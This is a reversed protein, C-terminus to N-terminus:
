KVENKIQGNFFANLNDFVIETRKQMSEASAFAIHPTLLTNKAGLLPYDAPLPPEMDFVDIGAGALQNQNLADALAVNDVVGGRALNLLIASSKMSSLQEKGILHKTAQNLPCHLSVIDSRQLLEQLSVFEVFDDRQANSHPTYALVKCGFAAFLRATARGIAGMGVIGVCKSGLESGVLGDKTQGSRCRQQTAFVNRLLDIAMCVALEAVANTSYGAANSIKAGAAKVAAIDVHDVGTFAIDVYKLHQCASIVEGPLPMNALILVDADACEEKLTQSDTTKQYCEFQHGAALLPQTFSQLAESSIGLDELLVIKM